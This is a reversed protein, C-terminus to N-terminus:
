VRRCVLGKLYAGEPFSLLIPHDSAQSLQEIIQIDLEADEAAGAVIKQFLERGVGGSCSFTFLFGGPKLLKIALLNIDKYGRAAREIQKKTPAFKPPDLIILDFSKGQDRFTRLQTFVDAAILTVPSSDMGNAALNKRLLELAEESIDVATVHKAKGALANLTFGGSYSFCDLVEAQNAFGRLKVRNERQDLYFGTKHGGQVDLLYNLGHEEIEISQNPYKGSILGERFGLGELTRVEADSREFITKGPFENELFKVIEDRYKEVGCSLFQVVVVEGYVDVVLGPLMDSEAHVARFAQGNDLNPDKSRAEIAMHIRQRILDILQDSTFVADKGFKWVRCRIQSAPSFAGVGLKTGDFARIEVPDGCQPNDQTKEIAGSFIWPHRRLVSKERGKKLVLIPIKNVKV